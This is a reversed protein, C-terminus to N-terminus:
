RRTEPNVFEIESDAEPNAQQRALVSELRAVRQELDDRQLAKLTIGALYGVSNAVPVAIQGRRVHSMTETLLTTIDAASGVRVDPADVSLVTLRRSREKGGDSRAAEREAASDPDHIFCYDRGTRANARCRSGDAKIYTCQGLQPLPTQEDTPQNM